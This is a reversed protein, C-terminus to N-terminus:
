LASETAEPYKETVPISLFMASAGLGLTRIGLFSSIKYESSM